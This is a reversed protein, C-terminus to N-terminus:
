KPKPGSVLKMIHKWRRREADRGLAASAKALEWGASGVAPGFGIAQLTYGVADATRVYGEVRAKFIEKLHGATTLDPVDDSPPTTEPTNEAM